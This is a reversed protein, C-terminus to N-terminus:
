KSFHLLPEGVLKIGIPETMTNKAVEAKAIQLSWPEHDIEGRYIKGSTDAAFLCYRATLFYELM